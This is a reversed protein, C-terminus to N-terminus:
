GPFIPALETTPNNQSSYTTWQGESVEGILNLIQDMKNRVDLVFVEKIIRKIEALFPCLTRWDCIVQCPMVYVDRIFAGSCLTMLGFGRNAMYGDFTGVATSSTGDMKMNSNAGLVLPVCGDGTASSVLIPSKPLFGSSPSVNARPHALVSNEVSLRALM